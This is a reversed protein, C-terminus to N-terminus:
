YQDFYMDYYMDSVNLDLFTYSFDSGKPGLFFGHTFFSFGPNHSM